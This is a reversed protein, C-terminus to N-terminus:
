FVYFEGETQNTEPARVIPQGSWKRSAVRCIYPFYSFPVPKFRKNVEM